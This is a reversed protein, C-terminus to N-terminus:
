WILRPIRAPFVFVSNFPLLEFTFGTARSRFGSDSFCCESFVWRPIRPFPISVSRSWTFNLRAWLKAASTVIETPARVKLELWIFRGRQTMTRGAKNKRSARIKTSRVGAYRLVADNFQARHQEFWSKMTTTERGRCRSNIPSIRLQIFLACSQGRWRWALSVAVM